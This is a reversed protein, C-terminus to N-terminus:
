GRAAELMEVKATLEQIAKLCVGIADQLFIVKGDGGTKFAQKFDEAYPGIHPQDEGIYNWREVALGSVADLVSELPAKNEKYSHSSGALAATAATRGMKGIGAAGLSGGLSYLGGANAAGQQQQANYNNLRGQYAAMTPGTIDTPAVGTAGAPTFQPTQVGPSTGLLAALENIPQNRQLLMEQVANQRGQTELGFLRSQEQGGGLIASTLAQGYLDNQGKNFTDFERGYAESNIPIGQATLRTRLAEQQQDRMPDLRSRARDYLKQEIRQRTEDNATPAAGLSNLSFPNAQAAEVNGFNRLALSNVSESLQNQQDFLRQGEPSLTITSQWVDNPDYGGASTTAPKATAAGGVGQTPAGYFTGAEAGPTGPAQDYQEIAGTNMNRYNTGGESRWIGQPDPRTGTGMGQTTTMGGGAPMNGALAGTTANPRSYTLSGYPTVQNMRNLLATLRATESNLGSQAAATAAPDPPAPASGGSKGGM